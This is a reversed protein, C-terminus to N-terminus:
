VHIIYAYIYVCVCIHIHTYIYILMFLYIFVIYFSISNKPTYTHIYTCIYTHIYTHIYTYAKLPIWKFQIVVLTKSITKSSHISVIALALTIFSLM